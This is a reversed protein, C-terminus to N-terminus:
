WRHDSLKTGCDPCYKLFCPLVGENTEVDMYFPAIDKDCKNESIHVANMIGEVADQMYKCCYDIKVIQKVSMYGSNYAGFRFYIAPFIGRRM